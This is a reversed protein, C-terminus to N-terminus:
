KAMGIINRDSKIQRGKKSTLTGHDRDPTKEKKKWKIDFGLSKNVM